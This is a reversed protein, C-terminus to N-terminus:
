GNNPWLAATVFSCIMTKKLGQSKLMRGQQTMLGYPLGHFKERVENTVIFDKRFQTAIYRM